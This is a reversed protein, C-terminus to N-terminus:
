HPAKCQLGRTNQTYLNIFTLIFIISNLKFNMTFFYHIHTNTHTYIFINQWPACKSAAARPDQSFWTILTHTNTHTHTNAHPSVRLHICKFTHMMCKDEIVNCCNESIYIYMCIYIYINIHIHTYIYIRPLSFKSAKM